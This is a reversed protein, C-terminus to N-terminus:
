STGDLALQRGKHERAQVYPLLSQPMDLTKGNLLQKVTIIQVKPFRRSTVAHDYSGSRGAADKMGKTPEDLTILVGLEARQSKVTGILDRVMAPNLQKGGKISVIARGIKGPDIPFRVIGDVGKDGVQKQNPTGDVLSVAWREFDFPNQKFLARAGPMGRPVGHVTYSDKIKDGYTHRLRKEILDVALYTIDIGISRRKLKQAADVTTGCGCFPDLVTDGENSSLRIVRELLALPKQTPYGLREAAVNNLPSVDTIVDLPPVGEAEELYRIFMPVGNKAKPWFIRGAEDLATLAKQTTLKGVIDRAFRPIAWHRGKATPDVGRWPKGSLGNRTGSATLDARNFRRGTGAEINNYWQDITSQPLSARETNWTYTSTKTYFLLTDHVPSYRKSSSHASSRKWIVESRFNRVGFVADLIIKLYHGATPDCHLYLSGTPKLVRHLEVLRATMMVLYALVDNGGSGDSLLKRMAEAADAVRGGQVLLQEYQDEAEQSWTWTDDFAEIQAQSEEGTKSRFLVNYSRNSNFPPDLYILDVSESAIHERLVALNDGYYLENM